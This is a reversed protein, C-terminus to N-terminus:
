TTSVVVRLSSSRIHPDSTIKIQPSIAFEIVRCIFLPFSASASDGGFWEAMAM